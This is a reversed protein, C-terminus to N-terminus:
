EPEDRKFIIPSMEPFRSEFERSVTWNELNRIHKEFISHLVSFGDEQAVTDNDDFCWNVSVNQSYYESFVEFPYKDPHDILMDRVGPRCLFHTSTYFPM